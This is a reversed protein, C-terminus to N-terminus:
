QTTAVGVAQTTPLLTTPYSERPAENGVVIYRTTPRTAAATKEVLKEEMESLLLSYVRDQDGKAREVLDWVATDKIRRGAMKEEILQYKGHAEALRGEIVLREADGKIRAIERIEEPTLGDRGWRVALAIAVVIVAVAIAGIAGYLAARSNSRTM